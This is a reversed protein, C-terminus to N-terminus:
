IGPPSNSGGDNSLLGIAGTDQINKVLLSSWTIIYKSYFTEINKNFPFNLSFLLQFSNLNSIPCARQNNMDLIAVWQM